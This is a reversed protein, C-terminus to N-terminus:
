YYYSYYQDSNDCVTAQKRLVDNLDKDFEQLRTLGREDEFTEGESPADDAADFEELLAEFQAEMRERAAQRDSLGEVDIMRRRSATSYTDSRDDRFGRSGSGSGSGSASNNGRGGAYRGGNDIDDDTDGGEYDSAFDGEGFMSEDLGFMGDDGGVGEEEEEEEEEEEGHHKSAKKGGKKGKSSSSAAATSKSSKSTSTTTSAKPKLKKKEVPMKKNSGVGSVAASSSTSSSSSSSTSKGGSNMADEKAKLLMARISPPLSSLDDEDVEIEEVEEDEDEDEFDEAAYRQTTKKEEEQPKKQQQQQKRGQTSTSTSTSTSRAQHRALNKKAIAAADAQLKKLEKKEKEKEKADKSSSRIGFNRRYADSSVPDVYNHEDIEQNADVFAGEEVDDDGGKEEEEEEQDEEDHYYNDEDEEGYYEGDEDEEGYYYDEDEEGEWMGGDDDDDDVGYEEEEEAEDDHSKAAVKKGAKRTTKKEEEEEDENEESDSQMARMFFDDELEQFGNENGVELAELFDKTIVAHKGPKVVPLELSSAASFVTRIKKQQKKKGAGAQGSKSEDGGSGAAAAAAAEAEAKAKMLEKLDPDDEAIAPVEKATIDAMPDEPLGTSGMFYGVGTIPRLHQSYDYEYPGKNPRAGGYGSGPGSEEIYDADEFLEDDDYDEEDDGGDADGIVGGDWNVDKQMKKQNRRPKRGELADRVEDEDFGGERTHVIDGSNDAYTSLVERPFDQPLVEEIDRVGRPLRTPELLFKPASPDM